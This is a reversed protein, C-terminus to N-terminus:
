LSPGFAFKPAILAPSLARSREPFGQRFHFLPPKLSFVKVPATQSIGRQFAGCFATTSSFGSPSEASTDALPLTLSFLSSACALASSLLSLLLPAPVGLPTAFPSAALPCSTSICLAGLM